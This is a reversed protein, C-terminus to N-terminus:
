VGAQRLWLTLGLEPHRRPALDAVPRGETTTVALVEGSVQAAHARLAAAVPHADEAAWWLEIRDTIELGTEKRAEQVLRVVERALGAARLEDTLTLDLAVRRAAAAPWRGGAAPPRPSCWRRSGHGDRGRRRGDVVASGGARLSAALAAADAAAIAAAVEKTRAGFRKGLARFQAKATVDVLDGADSLGSAAVVNLEDLVEAVLEPPLAAWGPAAVMVRSLPQRTKVKSEARASRGLEVLRRVLAM